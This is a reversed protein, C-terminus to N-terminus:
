GALCETTRPHQTRTGAAAAPLRSERSQLRQQTTSAAYLPARSSHGIVNFGERHCMRRRVGAGERPGPPSPRRQHRRPLRQECLRVRLGESPCAAGELSSTPTSGVGGAPLRTAARTPRSELQIHEPWVATLNDGGMLGGKLHCGVEEAHSLVHPFSPPAPPHSPPRRTSFRAPPDETVGWPKPERAETGGPPCPPASAQHVGPPKSGPAVSARRRSQGPSAPMRAAHRACHCRAVRHVAACQASGQRPAERRAAAVLLWRFRGRRQHPRPRRSAARLQWDRTGREHNATSSETGSTSVALEGNGMESSTHLTQDSTPANSGSWSPQQM